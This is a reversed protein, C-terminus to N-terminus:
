PIHRDGICEAGGFGTPVGDTSKAVAHLGDGAFSGCRVAGNTKRATHHTNEPGIATFDWGGRRASNM